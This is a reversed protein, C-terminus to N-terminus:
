VTDLIMQEAANDIVEPQSAPSLRYSSWELLTVLLLLTTRKNGDTFGHNRAMSEVLAAAKYEIRKYYGSYPRSIASEILPLSAIGAKSAGAHIVPYRSYQVM